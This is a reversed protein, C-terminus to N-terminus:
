IDRSLQSCATQCEASTHALSVFQTTTLMYATSLALLSPLTVWSILTSSCSFLALVSGQSDRLTVSLNEVRVIGSPIFCTSSTREWYIQGGFECEDEYDHFHCEKSSMTFFAVKLVLYGPAM